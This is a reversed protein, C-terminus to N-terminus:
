NTSTGSAFSETSFGGLLLYLFAPSIGLVRALMNRNLLSDQM